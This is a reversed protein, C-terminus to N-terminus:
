GHTGWLRCVCLQWNGGVTCWGCTTRVADAPVLNDDQFSTMDAYEDDDDAVAAATAGGTASTADADAYEDVGADAAGAGASAATAGGISMHDDVINGLLNTTHKSVVVGDEGFTTVSSITHFDDDGILTSRGLM